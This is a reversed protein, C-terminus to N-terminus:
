EVPRPCLLEPRYEFHMADFHTWRGGWIFGQAEFADVIAQPYAAPRESTRRWYAGKQPNLDIAIGFSHASLRQTDAITRWNQGGGLPFLYPNLAPDRGLEELTTSVRRLAEAAQQRATFRVRSNGITVSELKLHAPAAGYLARMFATSRDRGPDGTPSETTPLGRPYPKDMTQSITAEVIAGDAEHIPPRDDAYLVRQGDRLVLWIADGERVLEQVTQPYVAQLCAEDRQQVADSPLALVPAVGYLLAAGCLFCGALCRRLEFYYYRRM